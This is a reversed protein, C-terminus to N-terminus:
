CSGELLSPLSTHSLFPLPYCWLDFCQNPFRFNQISHWLNTNTICGKFDFNAIDANLKSGTSNKEEVQRCLSKFDKETSTTKKIAVQIEGYLKETSNAFDLMTAALQQAYELGNPTISRTRSVAALNFLEGMCGAVKEQYTAPEVPQSGASTPEPKPRKKPAAAVQLCSPTVIFLLLKIQSEAKWLSGGIIFSSKM